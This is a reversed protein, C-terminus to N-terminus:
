PKVTSYARKIFKRLMKKKEILDINERPMANNDNRGCSKTEGIQLNAVPIPSTTKGSSHKKNNM